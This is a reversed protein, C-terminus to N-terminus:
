KLRGQSPSCRQVGPGQKPALRTADFRGQGASMDRALAPARSSVRRTSVGRSRSARRM